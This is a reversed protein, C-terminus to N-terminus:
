VRKTADKLDMLQAYHGSHNLEYTFVIKGKKVDEMQKKPKEM